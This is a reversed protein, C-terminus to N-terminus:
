KAKLMKECMGVGVIRWNTKNENKFHKLNEMIGTM